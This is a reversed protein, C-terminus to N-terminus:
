FKFRVCPNLLLPRKEFTELLFSICISQAAMKFRKDSYMSPV